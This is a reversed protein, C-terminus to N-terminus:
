PLHSLSLVCFIRYPVPTFSSSLLTRQSRTYPQSRPPECPTRFLYPSPGWRFWGSITPSAYPFRFDAPRRLNPPCMCALSAAATRSHFQHRLPWLAQRPSLSSSPCECIVRTYENQVAVTQSTPYCTMVAPDVFVCSPDSAFIEIILTQFISSLLLACTCNDGETNQRRALESPRQPALPALPVLPVLPVPTPVVLDQPPRPMTSLPSLLSGQYPRPTPLLARLATSRRPPSSQMRRRHWLRCRSLLRCLLQLDLRATSVSSPLSRHVSPWRVVRFGLPHFNNLNECLCM